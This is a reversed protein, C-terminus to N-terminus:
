SSCGAAESTGVNMAYPSATATASAMGHACVEAALRSRATSSPTM